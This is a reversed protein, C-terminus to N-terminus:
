VENDTKLLEMKIRQNSFVYIYPCLLMNVQQGLKLIPYVNVIVTPSLSYMCLHMICLPLNTLLFSGVILLSRKLVFSTSLEHVVSSTNIGDENSGRFRPINSWISALSFHRSGLRSSRYLAGGSNRYQTSHRRSWHSLSYISQRSATSTPSIHGGSESCIDSSYRTKTAYMDYESESTSPLTTLPTWSSKIRGSGLLPGRRGVGGVNHNITDTSPRIIRIRPADAPNEIDAELQVHSPLAVPTIMDAPLTSTSKHAHFMRSIKRREWTSRESLHPNVDWSHPKRKKISSAASANSCSSNFSHDSQMDSSDHFDVRSDDISSLNQIAANSSPLSKSKPKCQRIEGDDFSEDLTARDSQDSGPKDRSSCSELKVQESSNDGGAKSHESGIELEISEKRISDHKPKVDPSKTAQNDEIHIPKSSSSSSPHPVVKQQKEQVAHQRQLFGRVLKKGQDEQSSGAYALSFSSDQSTLSSAAINQRMYQSRKRQSGRSWKKKKKKTSGTSGDSFEVPPLRRRRLPYNQNDSESAQEVKDTSQTKEAKDETISPETPEEEEGRLEPITSVQVLSLSSSKRVLEHHKSSAQISSATSIRGELTGKGSDSSVKPNESLSCSPKSVSSLSKKSQLETMEIFDSTDSEKKSSNQSRRRKDAMQLIESFRPGNTAISSWSVTKGSKSGLTSRIFTLFRKM